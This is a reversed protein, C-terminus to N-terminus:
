SKPKIKFLKLIKVLNQYVPLKDPVIRIYDTEDYKHSAFEFLVPNQKSVSYILHYVGPPITIAAIKNKNDITLNKVISNTIPPSNKGVLIYEENNKTPSEKRMDYFFWLATGYPVYAIDINKLHYHGGRWIGKENLVVALARNKTTQTLECLYGRNDAVVKYFRITLGKINTKMVFSNM